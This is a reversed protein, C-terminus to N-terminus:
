VKSVILAANTGGFGFSNSMAINVERKQAVNPVLDMATTVDPNDLNLDADRKFTELVDEFEHHDIDLVVNGFMQIFRRYSDYAFRADGSRRALGQVTEDNLGLNLVTDMMGPMSVRAGSRVSVLQPNDVKGFGAGIAKEIDAGSEVLAARCDAFGAGTRERLEKVLPAPVQVAQPPTSM